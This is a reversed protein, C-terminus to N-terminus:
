REAGFSTQDRPTIRTLRVQPRLGQFRAEVSSAVKRAYRLSGLKRVDMRGREGSSSEIRLRIKSHSGSFLIVMWSSRFRIRLQGRNVTCGLIGGAMSSEKVSRLVMGCISGIGSSTQASGIKTSITCSLGNVQSLCNEWIVLPDPGQLESSPESNESIDAPDAAEDTESGLGRPDRGPWAPGGVIWIRYM